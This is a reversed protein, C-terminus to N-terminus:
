TVVEVLIATPAVTLTVWVVTDVWPGSGYWYTHAVESLWFAIWVTFHIYFVLALCAAIIILATM